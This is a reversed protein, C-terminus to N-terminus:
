HEGESQVGESQDNEREWTILRDKVVRAGKGQLRLEKATKLLGKRIELTETSFDNNIYIGSGKLKKAAMLIREKQKYINCRLVITRPRDNKLQGVRHARDIEVEERIQLRDKFLAKVKTETIEWSEGHHEKMGDIRLNNRRSRDELDTLKRAQTKLEVREQVNLLKTNSIEIKVREINNAFENIKEEHHANTYNFSTKLDQVDCMINDVKKSLNQVIENFCAMQVQMLERVVSLSIMKEGNVENNDDLLSEEEPKNKQSSSDFNNASKNNGSKRGMNKLISM